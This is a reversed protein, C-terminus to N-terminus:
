SPFLFRSPFLGCKFPLIFVPVILRYLAIPLAFFDSPTCSSNALMSFYNLRHHVERSQNTSSYKKKFILLLINLPLLMIGHSNSVYM